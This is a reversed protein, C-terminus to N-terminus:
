SAMRGRQIADFIPKPVLGLLLPKIVYPLSKLGFGLARFGSLRVKAERIRGPMASYKSAGRGSRYRYLRDQLNAGRFGAAYMRMFLDYDECRRTEPAVRYGGVARLADARMVVTPHAFQSNWLFDRPQPREKLSLRGWEGEVDFLSVGTGVIAFEPHSNLFAIQLELRRPESFDDDDQRAIYKGRARELCYNLAYALGHNKEYRLPVVREDLSAVENIVNFTAGGDSSGDDVILLEWDRFTQNIVSEVSARFNARNRCRYVGMIISVTPILREGCLSDTIYRNDIM